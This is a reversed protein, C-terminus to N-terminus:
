LIPRHMIQNLLPHLCYRLLEMGNWQDNLMQMYPMSINASSYQVIKPPFLSITGNGGLQSIGKDVPTMTYIYMSCLVPILRLVNIRDICTRSRNAATAELLKHHIRTKLGVEEQISAQWFELASKYAAFQDDGIIRTLLPEIAEDNDQAVDLVLLKKLFSIKIKQADDPRKAYKVNQRFQMRANKADAHYSCGNNNQMYFSYSSITYITPFLVQFFTKQYRQKGELKEQSGGCITLLDTSVTDIKSAKKGLLLIM